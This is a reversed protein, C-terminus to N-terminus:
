DDKVEFESYTGSEEKWEGAFRVEVKDGDVEKGKVKVDGIGEIFDYPSEVNNEHLNYAFHQFIEEPDDIDYFASSFAEIAKETLLEEDISIEYVKTTVVEVKKTVLAM